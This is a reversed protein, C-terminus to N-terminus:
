KSASNAKLIEQFEELIKTAAIPGRGRAWLNRDVTLFHGEKVAKLDKFLPNDKLKDPSDGYLLLYDPNLEHVRELAMRSVEGKGETSTVEGNFSYNMGVRDILTGIFSDKVWVSFSDDFYGSVLITPNGQVEQKLSAIKDELNQIVQKAEEKKGLLEGITTVNAIVQDYSADDFAITPAIGELEKQIMSHRDVSAIILDPRLSQVVELNPAKREGVDAVGTDKDALYEPIKTKGVGANGVPTVGLATLTDIFSFDLTVIKQPTQAFESEGWAHKISVSKSAQETPAAGESKTNSGSVAAQDKNGCGALALSLLITFVIGMHLKRKRM